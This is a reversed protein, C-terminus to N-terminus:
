FEVTIAVPSNALPNEFLIMSDVLAPVSESSSITAPSFEEGLVNAALSLSEDDSRLGGPPVRFTNGFTLNMTVKTSANLAGHIFFMLTERDDDWSVTFPAAGEILTSRNQLEYEIVERTM